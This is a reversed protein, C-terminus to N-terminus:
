MMQMGFGETEDEDSIEEPEDTETIGVPDTPRLTVTIGSYDYGIRDLIRKTLMKMMYESDFKGEFYLGEDIELPVNMDTPTDSLIFRTRGAVSGRINMLRQHMEPENNCAKLVALAVSKWTPTPITQGDPLTLRAPKEGKFQSPYVNLPLERPKTSISKGSTLCELLEDYREDILRHLRTRSEELLEIVKKEEM